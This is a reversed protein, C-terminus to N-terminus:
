HSDRHTKEKREGKREKGKKVYQEGARTQQSHQFRGSVAMQQSSWGFVITKLPFPLFPPLPLNKKELKTKVPFIARSSEKTLENKINERKKGGEGEGVRWRVLM